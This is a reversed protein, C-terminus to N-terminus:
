GHFYQYVNSFRHTFTHNKMTVNLIREPNTSPRTVTWWGPPLRALGQSACAASPCLWGRRNLPCGRRSYLLGLLPLRSGFRLSPRAGVRGDRPTRPSSPRPPAPSCLFLRALQRMIGRTTHRWRLAASRLRCPRAALTALQRGCPAGAYRTARGQRAFRAPVRSATIAAALASSKFVFPILSAFVEARVSKAAAALQRVGIFWAFLRAFRAGISRGAPSREARLPAALTARQEGFHHSARASTSSTWAPM